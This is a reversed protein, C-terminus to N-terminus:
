GFMGRLAKPVRKKGSMMSKMMKQMDKFHNLLQNVDQISTGSGQAIRKRRSGNIMAPNHREQLTMSTIMAEVRRFETDNFDPVGGAGKLAGRMGPIMEMIGTLPGMKKLSQVQGLFDEFDFTATRMKRQMSKAQDEDFSEQAKEILSLVDGMGLIRQALRDPHFIELGDPKESTGLFKIPVGTVQRISLAAGGRADGDVKTLILGTLKVTRNFEEAVHVADQGTMSDAVLLVESPRAVREIERLEDMMGEDIHLRGATDVVVVTKGLSQAHRLGNKVIEPPKATSSESYVPIDLQKGLAKLQDIAAPRYIDAAILLPLQKQKRLFLGLKAAATTKGAGQLGALLIVNPPPGDLSLQAPEGLLRVLEEDVIKIVQQAPSLSQLVDAGISRERVGAVFDKVVKFNVDAELLSMRVERMAVDVDQETLSGKSRLGAFIGTLRDTLNDFM